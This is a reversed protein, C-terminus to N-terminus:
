LDETYYLYRFCNPCQLLASDDVDQITDGGHYSTPLLINCGSCSDEEIEAMVVGKNKVLLRNFYETFHTDFESSISNIGAEIVEREKKTKSKLSNIEKELVAIETTYTAINTEIIEIEQTIDGMKSKDYYFQAEIVARDQSYRDMDKEWSKIQRSMKLNDRDKEMNDIQTLIHDLRIEEQTIKESLSTSFDILKIKNNQALDYDDKLQLLKQENDEYTAVIVKRDKYLEQWRIINQIRSVRDM